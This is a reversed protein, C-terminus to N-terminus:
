ESKSEKMREFGYEEVPVSAQPNKYRHIVIHISSVHTIPNIGPNIMELPNVESARSHAPRHKDVPVNQRRVPRACPHPGQAKETGLSRRVSKQIPWSQASTQCSVHVLFSELYRQM